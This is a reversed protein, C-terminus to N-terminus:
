SIPDRRLLQKMVSDKNIKMSNRGTPWGNVVFAIETPSFTQVFLRVSSQDLGHSQAMAFKNTKGELEM